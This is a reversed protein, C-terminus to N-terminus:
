IHDVLLSYFEDSPCRFVVLGEVNSKIRSTLLAATKPSLFEELFNRVKELRAANIADVEDRIAKKEEPSKDKTKPTMKRATIVVEKRTYVAAARMEEVVSELETSSLRFGISLSRKFTNVAKATVESDATTTM